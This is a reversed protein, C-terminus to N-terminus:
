PVSRHHPEQCGHTESSWTEGDRGWGEGEVEAEGVGEGGHVQCDEAISTNGLKNNEFAESYAEDPVSALALPQTPTYEKFVNGGGLMTLGFFSM